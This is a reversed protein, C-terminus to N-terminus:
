FRSDNECPIGDNDGDMKTNPCHRIFFEAEERSTMQSCHQRGDCTFDQAAPSYADSVPADEYNIQNQQLYFHRAALMIVTVVAAIRILKSFGNSHSKKSSKRVSKSRVGEIRANTARMKGAQSEVDFYIFDGQKPPRSMHKLTSIHIFTDKQLEASQIFGYGKTDDWKTLVGKYM